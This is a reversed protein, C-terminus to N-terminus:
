SAGTALQEVVDALDLVQDIVHKDAISVWAARRLNGLSNRLLVLRDAPALERKEAATLIRHQAAAVYPDSSPEPATTSAQGVTPAKSETM